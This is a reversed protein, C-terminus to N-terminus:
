IEKKKNFMNMASEIGHSVGYLIAQTAKEITKNLIDKEDRGFPRLVYDVTDEKGLPRGIGLRVRNFDKSGLSDIISEIGKHGGSAGGFGLKMRGFELDLDDYVVWLDNSKKKYFGLVKWVAEGSLNMYTQPKLLLLKIGEHSVEVVEAAFQSKKFKGQLDLALQDTVLFGFNHRTQKYERGPNGLGVVIKM